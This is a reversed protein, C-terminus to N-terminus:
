EGADVEFLSLSLSLSLVLSLSHSRHTLLLRSWQSGSHRSALSPSGPFLVAAAREESAPPSLLSFSLPQPPSLPMLRSVHPRQCLGLGVAVGSAVLVAVKPPVAPKLAPFAISLLLLLIEFM